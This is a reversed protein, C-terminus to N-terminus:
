DSYKNFYALRLRDSVGLRNYEAELDKELYEGQSTYVVIYVKNTNDRLLTYHSNNFQGLNIDYDYEVVMTTTANIKFVENFFLLMIENFKSVGEVEPILYKSLDFDLSTINRLTDMDTIFNNETLLQQLNRCWGKDSVNSDMSVMYMPNEHTMHLIYNNELLDDIAKMEKSNICELIDDLTDDLYFNVMTSNVVSDCCALINYPINPPCNDRSCSIGVQGHDEETAILTYFFDTVNQRCIAFPENIDMKVDILRYLSVIIDDTSNVDIAEGGVTVRTFMIFGTPELPTYDKLAEITISRTSGNAKKIVVKNNFEEIDVIRFIDVNDEEDVKYFKYGRYKNITKDTKSM